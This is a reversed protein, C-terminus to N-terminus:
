GQNGSGTKKEANFVASYVEMRRADLLTIIYCDEYIVQQALVELTLTSILPIELAFCLGKAASVGIRLGTYSGPGKSIAIANLQKTDLNAERLVENIFVHLKEAHSFKQNNDERIAKIQGDVSLAVSCNTTSTELCLIIAM